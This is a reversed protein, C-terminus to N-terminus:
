RPGFGFPPKKLGSTDVGLHSMGRAMGGSVPVAETLGCMILCDKVEHELGGYEQTAVIIPHNVAKEPKMSQIEAMIVFEMGQPTISMEPGIGLWKFVRRIKNHAQVRLNYAHTRQEVIAQRQSQRYDYIKGLAQECIGSLKGSAVYIPEQEM